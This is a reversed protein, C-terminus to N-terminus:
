YFYEEFDNIFNQLFENRYVENNIKDELRNVFVEEDWSKQKFYYDKVSTIFDRPYSLISYILKIERNSLKKIKSYSGLIIPISEKDFAQNKIVKLILNAIDIARTNINCYDFDILSVEEGDLIFNHHALDNHCIVITEKDQIVSNYDCLALIKLANKLDKIYYDINDMFLTDFKNKYKYKNIREKLEILINLDNMFKTPLYEGKNEIEQESTISSFINKSAEHMKAVSQTCYGIEVPNNFTAERGEVLDLLVYRSGKWDIYSKGDIENYKLVNSYEKSIETTIKFIFNLREISDDVRKLIKKGDDTVIIFVKRLPIIDNVKVNLISFFEESLDYKCLTNKERYRIRNM